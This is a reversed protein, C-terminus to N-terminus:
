VTYDASLVSGIEPAASFRVMKNTLFYTVNRAKVGNIFTSIGESNRPIQSFFYDTRTGDAANLNTRATDHALLEEVPVPTDGGQGIRVSDGNRQYTNDYWVLATQARTALRFINEGRPVTTGKSITLNNNQTRNLTVWCSEGDNLSVPFETSRITNIIGTDPFLIRIDETLTISNAVVGWSVQGANVLGFVIKDNSIINNITQQVNDVRPGSNNDSDSDDLSMRGRMDATGVNTLNGQNNIESVLIGANGENFNDADSLENTNYSFTGRGLGGTLMTRGVPSSQNNSGTGEITVTVLANAASNAEVVAKIRTATAQGSIFRLVIENNTVQAVENGVTGIADTGGTLYAMAVPATQTSQATGSITPTVLLLAAPSGQVADRVQQATSVGTQLRVFVNNGTVTVVENGADGIPNTGGTLFTQAAVSQAESGTGTSIGDILAIAAASQGLAIRIQDATSVGDAIQVSINNGTVTVVESGATAGSTYTINILNGAVGVNRASYRIDQIDVTAVAGPDYNLYEVTIDNGAVGPNSATYTIDQITLAASQLPTGPDYEVSIANGAAGTVKSEFKLDQIIAFALQANESFRINHNGKNEGTVGSGFNKQPLEDYTDLNAQTVDTGQTVGFEFTDGVVFATPGQQITLFVKRDVDSFQQSVVANGIPGDESGVVNFVTFPDVASCIATYTQTVTFHSLKNVTLTGNGTAGARLTPASSVSPDRFIAQSM